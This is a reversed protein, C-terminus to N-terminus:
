NRRDLVLLLIGSVVAIAGIIPPLPIRNTKEATLHLSGVDVVKERTTYTFGQYAFAAVGLVILAIAFLVRPKM